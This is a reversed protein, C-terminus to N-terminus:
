AGHDDGSNQLSPDEPAPVPAPAKPVPIVFAPPYKRHNDTEADIAAGIIGGIGGAARAFAPLPHPKERTAELSAADSLVKMNFNEAAALFRERVTHLNTVEGIDILGKTNCDRRKVLKRM